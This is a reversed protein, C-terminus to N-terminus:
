FADVMYGLNIFLFIWQHWVMIEVPHNKGGSSLLCGNTPLDIQWGENSLFGRSVESPKMLAYNLFIKNSVTPM